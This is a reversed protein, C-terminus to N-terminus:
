SVGENSSQSSTSGRQIGPRVQKMLNTWPQNTPAVGCADLQTLGPPPPGDTEPLDYEAYSYTRVQRVLNWLLNEDFVYTIENTAADRNVNGFWAPMASPYIGDCLYKFIQADTRNYMRKFSTFNAPPPILNAVVPSNHADHNGTKGLHLTGNGTGKTHHCVACNAGFINKVEPAHPNPAQIDSGGALHRAYFLVEWREDRSLTDRYALTEGNIKAHVKPLSARRYNSKMPNNVEPAEGNTLFLFLDIPTTYAINRKVNEQQFFGASHCQSCNNEFKKGDKDGYFIGKGSLLSPKASPFSFDEKLLRDDLGPETVLTTAGESIKAKQTVCGTLLFPVILVLLFLYPLQNKWDTVNLNLKLTQM